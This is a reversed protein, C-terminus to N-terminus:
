RGIRAGVPRGGGGSGSGDPPVPETLLQGPLAATRYVPLRFPRVQMTAHCIALTPVYEDHQVEPPMAAGRSQNGPVAHHGGSM